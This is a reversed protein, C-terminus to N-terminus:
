EHEHKGGPLPRVVLTAGRAPALHEAVVRRLEEVTVRSYADM